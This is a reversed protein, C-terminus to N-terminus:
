KPGQLPDRIAPGVWNDGEGVGMGRELWVSFTGVAERVTPQGGNHVGLLHSAVVM